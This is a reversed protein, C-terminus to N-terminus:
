PCIRLRHAGAALKGLKRLVEHPALRRHKQGATSRHLFRLKHICRSLRIRQSKQNRLILQLRLLQVLIIPLKIRVRHVIRVLVQDEEARSHLSIGGEPRPHRDKPLKRVGHFVAPAERHDRRNARPKLLQLRERLKERRPNRHLAVRVHGERVQGPFQRLKPVAPTLLHLGGAFVRHAAANEVDKGDGLFIGEADLVPAVLNVVDLNEVRRALAGDLRHVRNENVGRHLHQEGLLLPICRKLAHVGVALRDAFLERGILGVVLLVMQANQRVLELLADAVRRVRYIQPCKDIIELFLRRRKEGEERLLRRNHKQVLGRLHFLHRLEDHPLVLLAHLAAHHRSAKERPLHAGNDVVTANERVECRAPRHGHGCKKHLVGEDIVPM